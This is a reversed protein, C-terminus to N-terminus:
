NIYFFINLCIHLNKQKAVSGSCLNSVAPHQIGESLVSCCLVHLVSCHFKYFYMIITMFLMIIEVSNFKQSENLYFVSFISFPEISSRDKLGQKGM